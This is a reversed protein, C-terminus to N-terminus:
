YIVKVNEPTLWDKVPSAMLAGAAVSGVALPILPVTMVPPSEVVIPCSGNPFPALM